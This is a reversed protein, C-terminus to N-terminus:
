TFMTTFISLPEFTLILSISKIPFLSILSSKKRPAIFSVFCFVSTLRFADFNILSFYSASKTFIMSAYLSFPYLSALISESEMAYLASKFAMIILIFTSSPFLYRKPFILNRPFVTYESSPSRPISPIM